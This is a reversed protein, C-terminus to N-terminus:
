IGEESPLHLVAYFFLSSGAHHHADKLMVWLPLKTRCPEKVSVDM